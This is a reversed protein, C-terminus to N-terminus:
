KKELSKMFAIIMAVDRESVQGQFSSMVNPFGNVVKAGPTLISERVYNEDVVIAGASTQETRGWIGLWTPGQGANGDITHCGSCGKKQWLKKGMSAPTELGKFDPNAKMFADPDKAYQEYQEPSMRKIPDLKEIAADLEGKPHVVVRTVMASHDKGCYETCLIPFTGTRTPKFWMTTFRGPVVDMKARFAPVWLSHLVDESRMTLKTPQNIECHLEDSSVGSPYNFTWVWQRAVVDVDRANTPATRQDMYVQLGWWFMIAVLFLPIISWTLELPTNHTLHYAPKTGEARRYVGAFWFMLGVILVFFFISVGMIFNFVADVEQSFSSAQPPMWFGQTADEAALMLWNM